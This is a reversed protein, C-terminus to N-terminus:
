RITVVGGGAIMEQAREFSERELSVLGTTVGNFLLFRDEDEIHVIRNYKSRKMPVKM